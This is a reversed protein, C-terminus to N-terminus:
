GGLVRAAARSPTVLGASIEAEAESIAAAASRELARLAGERLLQHFFALEQALHRRELEGTADLASRHAQISAWVDAIGLGHLGSALLVQPLLDPERSAASAPGRPGLIKLASKMDAATARARPLNDGDAKHVVVRDCLEMIGRKMGQLEDGSGPLALLVFTDVMDAVDTESQGVGVTEVFLVDFDYAECLSLVERTRAAVGGLHVGAASPRVFARPHVALRPMRTKDGLISGGTRRSSPDIALVALRSTPSAELLHVGLAEIFTSKGVGPPGTIGVRMVRRSPSDGAGGGTSAQEGCPPPSGHVREGHGRLLPGRLPGNGSGGPAAFEGPGGERSAARPAGVGSAHESARIEGDTAVVNSGPREQDSRAVGGVVRARRLELARDLVVLASERDDARESELLSVTRALATLDGQELGRLAADLSFRPM